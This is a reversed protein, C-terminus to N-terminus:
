SGNITVQFEIPGSPEPRRSGGPAEISVLLEGKGVLLLRANEPTVPIVKRGARPLLGLPRPDAKGAPKLWLQYVHGAAVPEQLLADAAIQHAAPALRVAWIPRRAQDMVVAAVRLVSFDPAPRAVIAAVWLATALTALASAVRSWFWADDPEVAFRAIV